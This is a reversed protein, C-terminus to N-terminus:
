CSGAYVNRSSKFLGLEIRKLSICSVVLHLKNVSLFFAELPLM